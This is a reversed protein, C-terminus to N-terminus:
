WQLLMVLLRVALMGRTLGSGHIFGTATLAYMQLKQQQCPQPWSASSDQQRQMGATTGVQLELCSSNYRAYAAQGAHHHAPAERSSCQVSVGATHLYVCLHEAMHPTIQFLRAVKAPWRQQCAREQLRCAAVGFVAQATHIWSCKLLQLSVARQGTSHTAYLTCVQHAEDDYTQEVAALYKKNGALRL